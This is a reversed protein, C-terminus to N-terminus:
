DAVAGLRHVGACLEGDALRVGRRHLYGVVGRHPQADDGGRVLRAVVREGDVAHRPRRRRPRARPRPRSRDAPDGCAAHVVQHEVDLRLAVVGVAVPDEPPRDLLPHPADQAHASLAATMERTLPHDAARDSGRAQPEAYTSRGQTFPDATVEVGRDKFSRGPGCPRGTIPFRRSMSEAPGTSPKTRSAPSYPGIKLICKGFPTRTNREPGSSTSSTQSSLRNSLNTPPPRPFRRCPPAPSPSNVASVSLGSQCRACLMRM